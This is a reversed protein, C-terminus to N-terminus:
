GLKPAPKGSVIRPPNSDGSFLRLSAAPFPDSLPRGPHGLVATNFSQAQFRSKEGYRASRPVAPNKELLGPVLANAPDRPSFRRTTTGSFVRCSPFSSTLNLSSPGPSHSQGWQGLKQFRDKRAGSAHMCSSCPRCPKAGQPAGEGLGFYSDNEDKYLSKELVITGENFTSAHACGAVALSPYSYCAHMYIHM